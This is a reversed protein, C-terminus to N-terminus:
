NVISRTKKKAKRMHKRSSFIQKEKDLHFLELPNAKEDGGEANAVTRIYRGGNRTKKRLNQEGNSYKVAEEVNHRKEKGTRKKM